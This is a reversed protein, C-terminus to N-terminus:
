IPESSELLGWWSGVGCFLFLLLEIEYKRQKYHFPYKFHSSRKKKLLYQWVKKTKTSLDLGCDWTSFDRRPASSVGGGIFIFNYFDINYKYVYTLPMLCTHRYAKQKATTGTGSDRIRFLIVVRFFSIIVMVLPSAHTWGPFPCQYSPPM